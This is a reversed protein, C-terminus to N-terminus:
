HFHTAGPTPADDPMETHVLDSERDAFLPTGCDDCFEMAFIEELQIIDTVGCELLISPIEGALQENEDLNVATIQDEAQYLPWVVGYIVETEDRLCFSIRYEDIQGPNEQEGFSAIIVSFQDAEKGLTQTLYFMASRLSAPRIKIDAERCATYYAEPLLLEIGCGPLLRKVTAETQEQWQLLADTKAQACDYPADITQWQFIPAGAPAVLIGLVYRVDALFPVTKAKEPEAPSATNKLLAQSHRELLAYTDAHSRPLQDISYLSPLLRLRTQDALLHATLQTSLITLAEVPIAGSAIEFRTWALAPAAILLSIFQKGDVEFHTCTSVSELTETLVEYANPHTQFLHETATDLMDQHHQKLSKTVLADLKAQWDLDEIRSASQAVALALNAVRQSEAALKLRNRKIPRRM